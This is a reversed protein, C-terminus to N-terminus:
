EERLCSISKLQPHKSNKLRPQNHCNIALRQKRQQLACRCWVAQVWIDHQSWGRAAVTMSCPLSYIILYIEPWLRESGRPTLHHSCHLDTPCWISRPKNRELDVNVVLVLPKAMQPPSFRLWWRVLHCRGYRKLQPPATRNGANTTMDSNFHVIFKLIELRPWSSFRLGLGVASQLM